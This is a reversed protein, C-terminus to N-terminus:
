SIKTKLFIDNALLKARQEKINKIIEKKEQNSAIDYEEIIYSLRGSIKMLLEEDFGKGSCHKQTLNVAEELYQGRNEGLIKRKEESVGEKGTMLIIYSCGLAEALRSITRPSPRRKENEFESIIYRAVGSAEALQDQTLNKDERIKKLFNKVPKNEM